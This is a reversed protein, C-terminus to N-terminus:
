AHIETPSYCIIAKLLISLLNIKLWNDVNSLEENIQFQLKKANTHGMTLVSDDAYLTASLNLCKTLDNTYPLFFLPGLFSSQPVGIEM